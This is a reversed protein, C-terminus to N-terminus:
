ADSGIDELKGILDLILDRDFAVPAPQHPDPMFLILDDFAMAKEVAQQAIARDQDRALLDLEGRAVILIEWAFQYDAVPTTGSPDIQEAAARAMDVVSQLVQGSSPNLVSRARLMAAEVDHYADKVADGKAAELAQLLPLLDPAGKAALGEAIAPLVKERAHAFHSGEPHQLGEELFLLGLKLDARIEGLGILLRLTEADSAEGEVEILM